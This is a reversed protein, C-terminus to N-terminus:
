AINRVNRKISKKLKINPKKIKIQTKRLKIKM